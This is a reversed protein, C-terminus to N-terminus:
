NPASEITYTRKDLHTLNFVVGTLGEILLIDKKLYLDNGTRTFEEHPLVKVVFIADGVLCEPQICM